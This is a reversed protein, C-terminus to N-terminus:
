PPPAVPERKRAGCDPDEAWKRILEVAEREEETLEMDPKSQLNKLMERGLRCDEASFEGAKLRNQVMGYYMPDRRMKDVEAVEKKAKEGAQLVLTLSKERLTLQTVEMMGDKRMKLLYDNMADQMLESLLALSPGRQGLKEWAKQPLGLAEAAMRFILRGVASQWFTDSYMGVNLRGMFLEPNNLRVLNKEGDFAVGLGLRLTTPRTRLGDMPFPLTMERLQPRTARKQFASPALKLLLTFRGPQIYMRSGEIPQGSQRIAHLFMANAQVENIDLTFTSVRPFQKWFRKFEAEVNALALPGAADLVENQYVRLQPLPTLFGQFAMVGVVVLVVSFLASLRGAWRLFFTM